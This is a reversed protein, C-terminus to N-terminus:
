AHGIEKSDDIEHTIHTHLILTPKEISVKMIHKMVKKKIFWHKKMTVMHMYHRIVITTLRWM